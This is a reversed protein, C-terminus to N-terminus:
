EQTVILKKRYSAEGNLVNVFYVGASINRLNILKQSENNIVECGVIEGVANYINVKGTPILKDFSITFQGNTPNPSLQYILNSNEKISVTTDGCIFVDAAISPTSVMIQNLIPFPSGITPSFINVIGPWNASSPTNTFQTTSCGSNGISDTKVIYIDKGGVGFSTAYGAIIFGNDTTNKVAFSNDEDAGGYNKSWLINGTSDIKVITMKSASSPAVDCIVAAFGNDHTLCGSQSIFRRGSEGINKSWILNGDSDYKIIKADSQGIANNWTNGTTIFGDNPLINLSYSGDNNIEGIAKSWILTGSSSTKMIYDDILGAGFGGVSGILILDGNSLEAVDSGYLYGGFSSQWLMTGAVSFKALVTNSGATGGVSALLLTSDIAQKLHIRWNKNPVTYNINFSNFWQIDGSANLKCCFINENGNGNDDYIGCAYYEGSFTQKIDMIYDDNTSGFSKTWQMNGTADIKLVLADKGGNGLNSTYGGIIYGGDSTLNVSYAEEDSVSGYVKQFKVQAEALSVFCFNAIVLLLKKM